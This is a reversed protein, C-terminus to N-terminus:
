NGSIMINGVFNEKNELKSIFKMLASHSQFDKTKGVIQDKKNCENWRLGIWTTPETTVELTTKQTKQTTSNM